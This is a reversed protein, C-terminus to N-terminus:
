GFTPALLEETAEMSITCNGDANMQGSGSGIRWRGIVDYEGAPLDTVRVFGSFHHYVTSSNFLHAAVDYDVTSGVGLPNVQFGVLCYTNAVTVFLSVAVAFRVVTDSQVKAFTFGPTGPLDQYSALGLTGSGLNTQVNASGLPSTTAGTFTGIVVWDSGFRTLGVRDGAAAPVNGFVKVPVALSSGDITIMATTADAAREVVTGMATDRGAAARIRQDILDLVKDNYAVLHLEM